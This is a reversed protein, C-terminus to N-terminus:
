RGTSPRAAPRGTAPSRPPPPTVPLVRNALGLGRRGLVVGAAVHLVTRWRGIPWAPRLWRRAEGLRRQRLAERLAGFAYSAAIDPHDGLETAYKDFYRRYSRLARAPNAVHDARGRRITVLVDAMVAVRAGDATASLLYDREVIAPFSPDFRADRRVVERDLLLLPTRERLAGSLVDIRDYPGDTVAPGDLISTGEVRGRCLIAGVAPDDRQARALADLQHRLKDPHWLDDSDNFALHRGTARDIGANRARCVGQNSPLTVHVVRPDDVQAGILDHAGDTSGDDVLVLELDRHSQTLVSRAAEVVVDARDFYPLIVSVVPERARPAPASM